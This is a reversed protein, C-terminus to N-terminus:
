HVEISEISRLRSVYTEEDDGFFDCLMELYFLFTDEDM